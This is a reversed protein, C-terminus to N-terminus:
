AAEKSPFAQSVGFKDSLHRNLTDYVKSVQETDLDTTSEIEYMAKQIPKWLNEKATVDTWPIEVEPKLVKRMDLGANNLTKALLRCFVHIASNQPQTRQRAERPKITIEWESIDQNANRYAILHGWVKQFENFGNAIFTKM